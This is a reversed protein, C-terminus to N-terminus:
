LNFDGGYLITDPLVLLMETIMEKFAFTLFEWRHYKAQSFRRPPKQQQQLKMETDENQQQIRM